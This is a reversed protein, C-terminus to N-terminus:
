PRLDQSVQNCMVGRRRQLYRGAAFGAFNLSGHNGRIIERHEANLRRQAPEEKWLLILDPPTIRHRDNGHAQPLPAEPSIWGNESPRDCDVADDEADDANRRFFEM